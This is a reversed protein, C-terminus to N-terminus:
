STADRRVLLLLSAPVTVAAVVLTPRLGVLSALGGIAAGGVAGIGMQASRYTGLLPGRDGFGEFALVNAIPFVSSVSAGFVVAPVAGVAVSPALTWAAGAVALVVGVRAASRRPGVRDAWSGTVLKAPVSLVRSAALVLAASGASLGWASVAFVPIFSVTGYQTLSGVSGVGAALGIANRLRKREGGPPGFRRPPMKSLAVVVVSLATMVAGVAFPLRWRVGAGISALLAAIALGSSFAVGFLGMAFGRRPGGVTGVVNIGPAFFLGSGLGLLAQAAFFLVTSSATAALSAGATAPLLAALVVTKSGRRALVYGGAVNGVAISGTLLGFAFGATALDLGLDSAAAPFVPALMSEGITVAVYAGCVATFVAWQPAGVDPCTDSGTM